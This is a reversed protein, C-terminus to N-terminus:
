RCCTSAKKLHLQVWERSCTEAKVTICVSRQIADDTSSLQDEKQSEKSDAASRKQRHIADMVASLREGGPFPFQCRNKQEHSASQLVPVENKSEAEAHLSYLM